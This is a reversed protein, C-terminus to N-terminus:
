HRCSHRQLRLVVGVQCQMTNCCANLWMAIFRVDFQMSWRLIVKATNTSQTQIDHFWMAFGPLAIVIFEALCRIMSPTQFSWLPAFRLLSRSSLREMPPVNSRQFSQYLRVTVRLTQLRASCPICKSFCGNEVFRCALQYSTPKKRKGFQLMRRLKVLDFGVTDAMLTAYNAKGILIESANRLLPAMQCKARKARSVRCQIQAKQSVIFSSLHLTVIAKFSCQLRHIPQTIYWWMNPLIYVVVSKDHLTHAVRQPSWQWWM